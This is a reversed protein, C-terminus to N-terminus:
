KNDNRRAWDRKEQRWKEKNLIKKRYKKTMSMFYLLLGLFVLTLLLGIIITTSSDEIPSLAIFSVGIYFLLFSVDVSYDLKRLSKDNEEIKKGAVDHLAKEAFQFSKQEDEDLGQGAQLLKFCDVLITSYYEEEAFLDSAQLVNKELWVKTDLLLYTSMVGIILTGIIFLMYQWPHTYNVVSLLGVSIGVMVFGVSMFNTKWVLWGDIIKDSVEIRFREVDDLQKTHFKILREIEPLFEKSNGLNKGVIMPLNHCLNPSYTCYINCPYAKCLEQEKLNLFHCSNKDTLPRGGLIS